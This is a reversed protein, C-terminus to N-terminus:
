TSPTPPPGAAAVPWRRWVAVHLIVVLGIFNLASTTIWSQTSVRQWDFAAAVASLLGYLAATVIAAVGLGLLGGAPGTAPWGDFLMAVILVAAIGTGALAAIRGPPLGAWTRLAAYSLGTLALTAANAVPLRLGRRAIRTFPRGALAVFFVVQWVGLVILWVGFTEPEVHGAPGPDVLLAWLALAALWSLALAALGSRIRGLGRLPWGETVLTLQLMVAFAAGALPLTVPYTAGHGPGTDARFMGSPDFDAVVAQGAATLMVGAVAALLTDTLGSWGARLSRGPWDEWWFAIMAVAPLAFTTLPGLVLVANELDGLCVALLAACPIIILLGAAGLRPQGTRSAARDPRRQHLRPTGRYAPRGKTPTAVVASNVRRGRGDSTFFIPVKNALTPVRATRRLWWM